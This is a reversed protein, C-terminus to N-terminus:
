EGVIEFTSVLTQYGREAEQNMVPMVVTYTARKSVVFLFKCNYGSTKDFITFEYGTCNKMKLEQVNKIRLSTPM